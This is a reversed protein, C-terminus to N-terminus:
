QIICQYEVAASCLDDLKIPNTFPGSNKLVLVPMWKKRRKLSAASIENNWVLKFDVLFTGFFYDYFLEFSQTLLVDWDFLNINTQLPLFDVFIPLWWWLCKAARGDNFRPLACRLLQSQSDILRQPWGLDTILLLNGVFCVCLAKCKELWDHNVRCFHFMVDVIAYCLWHHTSTVLQELGILPCKALGELWKKLTWEWFDM